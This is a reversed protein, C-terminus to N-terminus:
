ARCANGKYRWNIVRNNQIYFTTTCSNTYYYGNDVWQSSNGIYRGNSNTYNTEQLQYNPMYGQSQYNYELIRMTGTYHTKDPVGLAMVLEEETMGITRQLAKRYGAETACGAILFGIFFFIKKM